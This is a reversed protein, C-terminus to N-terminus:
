NFKRKIEFKAMKDKTSYIRLRYKARNQAGAMKDEFDRDDLTDFYLSLILYGKGKDHFDRMLLLGIMKSLSLYEPYSIYFKLEKRRLQEREMPQDGIKRKM